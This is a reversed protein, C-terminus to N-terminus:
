PLVLNVIATVYDAVTEALGIALVAGVVILWPAFLRLSSRTKNPM